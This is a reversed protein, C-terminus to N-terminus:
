LSFRQSSDARGRLPDSSDDGDGAQPLRYFYDRLVECPLFITSIGLAGHDVEASVFHQNRKDQKPQSVYGIPVHYLYRNRNAGANKNILIETGVADSTPAPFALDDGVFVYAGLFRSVLMKTRNAFECVALKEQQEVRVVRERCIPVSSSSISPTSRMSEAPIIPHHQQLGFRQM